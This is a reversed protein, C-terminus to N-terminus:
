YKNKRCLWGLWVIFTIVLIFVFATTFYFYDQQRPYKHVTYWNITDTEPMLFQPKLFFLLVVYLATSIVITLMIVYVHIYWPIKKLNFSFINWESVLRKVKRGHLFERFYFILLLLLSCVSIIVGMSFSLPQYVIEIIHRGEPVMFSLFADRSRIPTTIGDVSVKWGPYYPIKVQMESKQNHYTELLIKQSNKELVKYRGKFDITSVKPYEFLFTNDKYTRFALYHQNVSQYFLQLYPREGGWLAISNEKSGNSRFLIEYTRRPDVHIDPFPIYFYMRDRVNACLQSAKYLDSQGNSISVTFSCTNRRNFNATLFRIGALVSQKPQFKIRYENNSMLSPLINNSDKEITDPLLRLDYDSLIYRVGFQILSQESVQEVNESHNKIPFAKDFSEKYTNIDLADYSQVSKLGYVMNSDEKLSPNGVEMYTGKPYKQIERILEVQPYYKEKPVFPVYNWFLFGTQLFLFAILLVFQLAKSSKFYFLVTFFCITSLTQMLLHNQLQTEFGHPPYLGFVRIIRPLFLVPLLLGIGVIGMMYLGNLKYKIKKKLLADIMLSGLIVVSFGFIGLFRQNASKEFLPLYNTFSIPPISYALAFSFLGVIGWFLVLKQKRQTILAAVALLVLIIGVYGGASEQFNTGSIARYFSLHPAGLLFPFINLIVSSFPLSQSAFATRSIWATSHFLYELFPILQLSTLLVGLLGFFLTKLLTRRSNSFRFFCYSTVLIGIQFLTEPHGGFFALATCLSFVIYLYTKRRAITIKEVILFLIPLFIIVNTHPWLLWTLFFSSFSAAMAGLFSARKSLRVSRLYQFTFFVFIFVKAAHIFFLGSTLPLFFSLITLPFFLATQPNALFPVGLGNLDNWLPIKGSFLNTKAFYRWPEFQFVPDALLSNHPRQWDNNSFLPFYNLIDGSFYVGKIFFSLFFLFFIGIIFIVVSSSIKRLM